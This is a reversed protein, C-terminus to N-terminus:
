TRRHVLAEIQEFSIGYKRAIDRAYSMGQPPGPMIKYTRVGAEDSGNRALTQAILSTVCSDGPTEANIQEAAAALGHLHTAFIARAGLLRLGRVVDRALYLSEDPSTSSLSENLLVLSHRTAHAFIQSLRRAEEGLRGSELEPREEAAFHTFIADVPSIRAQRAPVPLGAQALVHILGVAQIFTTKGGQNPGTLIFIRGAAGAAPEGFAVDNLVVRGRLDAQPERALMRLALNLNFLDHVECARAERPLIDPRCMPLGAAEIRRVLQVAGLYFAIEGELAILFQSSLRAYRALAEAVPQAASELIDSLDKFLPVLMLNARTYPMHDPLTIRHLRALGQSTEGDGDPKGLLKGLLSFGAGKFRHTNIALLTAESPQLHADLNVGITVSGINRVKALMEPLEARLAQFAPDNEIATLADLVRRWGASALAGVHSLLVARLRQVCEVYLELEGLRFVVRQLATESPRAPHNVAYFGLQTLTPLLQRLAEALAANHLLDGLAAQRYAIVAPDDCLALLAQRARAEYRGDLSLARALEAIGLDAAAADNLAAGARGAGEPWLLSVPSQPIQASM